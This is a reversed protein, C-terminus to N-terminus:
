EKVEKKVETQGNRIANIIFEEPNDLSELPMMLGDDEGSTFYISGVMDFELETGHILILEQELHDPDSQKTRMDALLKIWM